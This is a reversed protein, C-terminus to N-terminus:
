HLCIMLSIKKKYVCCGLCSKGRVRILHKKTGPSHVLVRSEPTVKYTQRGSLGGGKSELATCLNWERLFFFTTEQCLGPPSFM